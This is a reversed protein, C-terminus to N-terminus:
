ERGVWPVGGVETVEVGEELLVRPGLAALGLAALPVPQGRLLEPEQRAAAAALLLHLAQHPRVPRPRARNLLEDLALALGDEERGGALGGAIGLPGVLHAAHRRPRAELRAAGGERSAQEDVRAGEVREVPAVELEGSGDLAM